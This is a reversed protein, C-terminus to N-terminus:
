KKGQYFRRSIADCLIANGEKDMSLWFHMAIGLLRDLEDRLGQKRGHNAAVDYAFNLGHWAGKKFPRVTIRTLGFQSTPDCMPARRNHGFTYQDAARGLRRLTVSFGKEGWPQTKAYDIGCVVGERYAREEEIPIPRCVVDAASIIM